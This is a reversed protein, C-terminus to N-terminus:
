IDIPQWRHPLLEEIRSAKHTPLRTLVDKLYAYPDHGNMRALQILSMVAAAMTSGAQFQEMSSFVGQGPLKPHKRSYARGNLLENLHDVRVDAPVVFLPDLDGKAGEAGNFIPYAKSKHCLGTWNKIRM